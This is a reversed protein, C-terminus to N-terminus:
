LIRNKKSKLVALADENFSPAILVEFFIENIADATAKDIHRQLGICRWLLNLIAPLHLM